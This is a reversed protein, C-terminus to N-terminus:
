AYQINTKLWEELEEIDFPKSLITIGSVESEPISKDRFWGRVYDPFEGSILALPVKNKARNELYLPIINGKNLYFDSLIAEYSVSAMLSLAEELSNAFDIDTEVNLEFDEDIILKLLELVALDDDIILLKKQKM